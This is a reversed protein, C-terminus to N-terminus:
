QWSRFCTHAAKKKVESDEIRGGLLPMSENKKGGDAM